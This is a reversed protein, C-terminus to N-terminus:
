IISAFLKRTSIVPVKLVSILDVTTAEISKLAKDILYVYVSVLTPGAYNKPFNM